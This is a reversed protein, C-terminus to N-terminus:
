REAIHACKKLVLLFTKEFIDYDRIVNSNKNIVTELKRKFKGRGLNKYDRGSSRSTVNFYGNHRDAEM